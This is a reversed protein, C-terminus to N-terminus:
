IVPIEWKLIKGDDNPASAMVKITFAHAPIYDLVPIPVIFLGIVNASVNFRSRLMLRVDDFKPGDEEKRSRCEGIAQLVYETVATKVAEDTMDEYRM